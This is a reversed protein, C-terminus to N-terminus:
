RLRMRRRLVFLVMLLAAAPVVYWVGRLGLVVYALYPSLGKGPQLRTQPQCPGIIFAGEQNQYLFLLLRDGVQPRLPHVGLLDVADVREGVAGKFTREVYITIQKAVSEVQGILVVDARHFHERPNILQPCIYAEAPAAAALMFLLSVVLSCGLRLM